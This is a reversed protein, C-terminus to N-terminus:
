IVNRAGLRLSDSIKVKQAFIIREQVVTSIFAVAKKSQQIKCVSMTVDDNSVNKVINSFSNSLQQNRFSRM